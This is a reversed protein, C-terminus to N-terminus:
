LFIPHQGPSGVDLILSLLCQLTGLFCSLNTSTTSVFIYVHLIEIGLTSVLLVLM